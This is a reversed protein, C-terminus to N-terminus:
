LICQLSSKTCEPSSWHIVLSNTTKINM